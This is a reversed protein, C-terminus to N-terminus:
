MLPRLTNILSDRENLYKLYYPLGYKKIYSKKMYDNFNKIGFLNLNRNREYIFKIHYKKALSAKLSYRYLGIEGDEEAPFYIYYYENKIKANIATIINYKSFIGFLTLVFLFLLISIIFYIIKM